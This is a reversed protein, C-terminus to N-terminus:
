KLTLGCVILEQNVSHLQTCTLKEDISVLLCSIGDTPKWSFFQCSQSM